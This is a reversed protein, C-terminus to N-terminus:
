LKHEKVRELFPQTVYPVSSQKPLEFITLDALREEHFVHHYIQSIYAENEALKSRSADLVDAVKTSNYAWFNGIDTKLPLLEGNPELMDRLANVARESFAPVRLAICPYDRWAPTNGIVEVPTWISALRPRVWENTEANYEAQFDLSASPKGRLSSLREAWAFGEYEPVDVIPQLQYVATPQEM